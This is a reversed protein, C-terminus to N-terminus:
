KVLYGGDCPIVTGNIYDSAHSSLFVVLGKVDDPTGWRGAPIRSSIETFRPNAPDTLEVNLDTDMYGPAICNVCIGKAAGHGLGRTGGTVIARHGGIDFLKVTNETRGCM